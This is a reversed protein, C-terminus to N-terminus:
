NAAAFPKKANVFQLSKVIRLDRDALTEAKKSEFAFVLAAQQGSPATCLYYIWSMDLGNATGLATVRYRYHEDNTQLEEARAIETLKEGLATRIDNQFRIEPTHHGPQVANVKTVNCQAALSGKEMLRLVAAEQTTHFVHWHRDYLLNVGWPLRLEVLLLSADPELPISDAAAKTLSGANNSLSRTLKVNAAVDMGPSVAGVSRKETQRLELSQLYKNQLDFLFHGVLKIETSAGVTAGEVSGEFTVRAVKSTVSQLTCSMENKLVAETGSLMQIVWSPTKWSEGIEVAKQPLLSLAALGDGPAQLLELETSNMTGAPCYFEVGEPRGQAVIARRSDRLRSSAINDGAEIRAEAQRYSRLSRLAQAGRGTGSLRRELFIQTAGVDLKISVAKDKGTATELQGQVDVHSEVRFVRSDGVAESLTYSEAFSPSAPAIGVVGALLGAFLTM